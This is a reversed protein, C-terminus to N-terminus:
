PGDEGALAALLPHLQAENPRWRGVSKQYIPQRVQVVSATRVPRKTEYFRLCADNWALGCHTLIQRVATEPDRVVDEYHVDLISEAPLARRWYEMLQTYARYHRGLEGLDYTFPLKEFLLSFCSLCTDVPDRCAHIIRANPMVLHILGLYHFNSLMKDTIRRIRRRESQASALAILRRLYHEATARLQDDAWDPLSDPFPKACTRAGSDRMARELADTEGAGFVDPHSALMQEILTSGSRPMGVILVPVRSALGHGSRDRLLEPTFVQRIRDLNEAERVTDYPVSHRKLANGAMVHEFSRQHEGIDALAKALAFHLSIQDAEKLSDIEDALALMQRLHRDGPLVDGARVLRLYYDPRRPDIAVARAFSEKAEDLRGIEQLVMGEGAYADALEPKLTQAQRHHSLAAERQGRKFLTNGLDVHLEPNNPQEQLADQYCSIAAADHHLGVLVHGLNIRADVFDPRLEVAKRLPLLAERNRDVVHLAAGLNNLAEVYDPAIALAAQYRKVAEEHRGMAALAAGLNNFAMAYNPRLSIAKEYCTVAEEHRALSHLVTGLNNHGESAKPARALSKRLLAVATELQGQQARIVGLRRLAEADGPHQRLIAACCEAEGALKGGCEM